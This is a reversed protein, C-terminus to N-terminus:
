DDDTPGRTPATTRRVGTARPRTQAHMSARMALSSPCTVVRPMIARVARKPLKWKRVLGAAHAQTVQKVTGDEAAAYGDAAGAAVQATAFTHASMVIVEVGDDQVAPTKPPPAQRQNPRLSM